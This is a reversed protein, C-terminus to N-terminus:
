KSAEVHAQRSWLTEVRAQARQLLSETSEAGTLADVMMADIMAALQPYTSTRPLTRAMTHLRELQSYFPVQHNLEPDRWTSKRCGVGGELSTIRDMSPQCLHSLFRYAEQTHLSRSSIGLTWYVNLSLPPIGAASPLPAIGIKGQVPGPLSQCEAAFGFWNAMMAVSGDRFLRGSQISDIGVANPVCASTDNAFTRYYTLGERAASSNVNMEGNRDVLEGGRSWLQICFDYVTNHADPFGAFVTGNLGQEPRHFFRAVDRYDEWNEPVRLERGL